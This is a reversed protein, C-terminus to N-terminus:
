RSVFIPNTFAFPTAGRRYLYSMPKSGRAVAIVWDGPAGDIDAEEDLRVAGQQFGTTWTKVVVGRKVIEVKDVDVWPPAQVKVRLKVKGPAIVDGIRASGAEITVFPGSSVTVRHKRIAEVFAAEDFSGPDDNPVLVYNRPVGAEQYEAKHSDSNGTATEIYGANLLAYWDELVREVKAVHDYHDGNFVELADFNMDALPSRAVWGKVDKDDLHLLEFYGIEGMRPHNVQVIAERGPASAGRAAAFITSPTVNEFVVAAADPALPFANFHGWFVGKTTIEDGVVSAMRSSLGLEGIVPRYDTVANHDTAVAVEVGVAALSRVRSDLPTPADFSPIAHVHLDASLFGKTDIARELTAEIKTTKNADITADKEVATFEFGHQVIVRYKGPALPISGEGLSYVADVAVGEDRDEGLDVPPAALARVLVKAPLLGKGKETVRWRLEGAIPMADKSTAVDNAKVWAGPAYGKATVRAGFCGEPLQASGEDARFISFPAGGIEDGECRAIEVRADKPAAGPLAIKQARASSGCPLANVADGLSRASTTLAITRRPSSSMATIPQTVDAVRAPEHFGPEEEGDFRMMVRGSRSCMAYAVGRDERAVFEASTSIASTVFGRGEVFTPTNGWGLIEGLSVGLAPEDSAVVVEDIQLAHETFYYYLHQTLARAFTRRVVHIARGDPTAEISVVEGDLKNLGDWVVPDIAVVEDRGGEAGFDILRGRSAQVVAVLGNSQLMWDGQAADVREGTLAVQEKSAVVTAAGVANSPPGPEDRKAADVSNRPPTASNAAADLPAAFPREDCGLTLLICVTFARRGSVVRTM